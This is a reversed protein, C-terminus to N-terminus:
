PGPELVCDSVIMWHVPTTRSLMSLARQERSRWGRAAERRRRRWCGSATQCRTSGARRCTACSPHPACRRPAPLCASLRAAWCLAGAGVASAVSAPSPARGGRCVQGGDWGGVKRRHLFRTPIPGESLVVGNAARCFGIGGQRIAAGLDVQRYPPPPPGNPIPQALRTCVSAPAGAAMGASPLATGALLLQAAQLPGACCCAAGAAAGAAATAAARWAWASAQLLVCAWDNARLHRPESAFHIHTRSQALLLPPLPQRRLRPTPLRRSSARRAGAPLQPLTPLAPQAPHWSACARPRVMRRLEGAQQIKEWSRPPALPASRGVRRRAAAALWRWSGGVRTSAWPQWRCRRLQWM